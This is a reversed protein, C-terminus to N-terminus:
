RSAIRAVSSQSGSLQAMWGTEGHALMEVGIPPDNRLRGASDTKRSEVLGTAPYRPVDLMNSM